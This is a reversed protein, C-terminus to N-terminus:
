KFSYFPSFIVQFRTKVVDLPQLVLRTIAGSLGGAIASEMFTSKEGALDNRNNM